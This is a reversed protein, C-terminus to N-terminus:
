RRKETLPRGFRRSWVGDIARRRCFEIKCRCNEFCKARCRRPLVPAQRGTTHFCCDLCFCAQAGGPLFTNPAGGISDARQAGDWPRDVELPGSSQGPNANRLDTAICRYEGKFEAVPDFPGRALGSIVSNLGGGAILLLPFGSGAVEYNIRVAGEEYFSMAAGGQGAPQAFVGPAAATATAAAGTALINRRIPDMM